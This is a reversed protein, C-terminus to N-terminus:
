CTLMLNNWRRNWRHESLDSLFLWGDAMLWSATWWGRKNWFQICVGKRYWQPRTIVNGKEYSGPYGGSGVDGDHLLTRGTWIHIPWNGGFATAEFLELIDTKLCPCSWRSRPDGMRVNPELVAPDGGKRSIIGWHLDNWRTRSAEATWSCLEKRERGTIRWRCFACAFYAGM